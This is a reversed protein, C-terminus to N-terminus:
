LYEVLVLLDCFFRMITKGYEEGISEMKPGLHHHTPKGAIPVPPGYWGWLKGRTCAPVLNSVVIITCSEAKGFFVVFVWLFLPKQM